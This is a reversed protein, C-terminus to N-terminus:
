ENVVFAPGKKMRRMVLTAALAIGALSFLETLPTALPLPSAETVAVIAPPTINLAKAEDTVWVRYAGTDDVTLPNISYTDTIAGPIAEGNKTWQLLPTGVEGVFAVRLTLSDGQRYRGSQPTEYFVFGVGVCPDHSVDVGRAELISIDTCTQASLPNGSLSIRDPAGLGANRLLSSVDVIQNNNLFLWEISTLSALPSVDVIQNGDLFLWTLSTLGALPSVDVIQNGDLILWMLGTLGALVRVDIIQNNQLLLYELSTLGALASVDIIQNDGILLYELSTLGALPSVDVIQNGMLYLMTLRTLGALPSVDVIQNYELGLGTLGTPGALMDYPIGINPGLALETLRTLGALPSLDTIQNNFLYLSVLNVCYEIGSLNAVSAYDANLVALGLLDSDFIDGTPKNIAQRIIHEFTPDPFTVVKGEGGGCPDHAVAVGRDRLVNIDACAQASLPNRNLYIWDGAGLGANGLLSSVECIQNGTLYLWEISTLGALPIASAIQNNDLYLTDLNTLGALASVDVIQNDHLKLRTLNTLGYLPTVDVIQNNDLCLTDLSTLSALPSIDVIQNDYLSLNALGLCYEIGSLNAIDKHDAGLSRLGQLDTDLIDDAPKSIAKRIAADLNPDPFTVVVAHAALTLAVLAVSFALIRWSRQTRFTNM